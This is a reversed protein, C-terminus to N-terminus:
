MLATTFQRGGQSRVTTGYIYPHCPSYGRRGGDISERLKLSEPVGNLQQWITIELKGSAWDLVNKKKKVM